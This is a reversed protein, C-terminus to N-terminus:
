IKLDKIIAGTQPNIEIPGYKVNLGYIFKDEDKKLIKLDDIANTYRQDLMIKSFEIQGLELILDQGKQQLDQLSKLEEKTIKEINEM